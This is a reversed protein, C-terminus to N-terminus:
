QLDILLSKAQEAGEIYISDFLNNILIIILVYLAIYILWQIGKSVKQKKM